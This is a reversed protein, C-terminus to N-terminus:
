IDIGGHAWFCVLRNSWEKSGVTPIIDGQSVIWDGNVIQDHVLRKVNELRGGKAWVRLREFLDYLVTLDRVNKWDAGGMIFRVVHAYINMTINWSKPSRQTSTLNQIISLPIAICVKLRSNGSYIIIALLGRPFFLFRLLGM